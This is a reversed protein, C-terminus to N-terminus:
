RKIGYLSFQVMAASLTFTEDVDDDHLIIIGLNRGIGDINIEPSSLVSSDWFFNEWASTDWLGGTPSSLVSFRSSQGGSGYDFDTALQLTIESPSDVELTIKHFRKNRDPSKHYNFPLQVFSLTSEGDFSTGIDMEMVYGDDTGAYLRTLENDDEGAWTRTFQHAYLMPMWGMLKQGFFTAVLASKDDFFLRYQNKKAAHLADISGLYKADLTKRVNRSIADTGLDQTAQIPIITNVGSRDLFLTNGGAEQMTFSRSGISDSVSKLIWDLNSTGRLVQLSVTTAIALQDNGNSKLGTIDDGVGIEAAGLRPTWIDPEGVGSNQLSGGPFGLFLHNRHAEIFKPTDVTMGTEINMFYTGDFEFARNVGDCGYVRRMNTAGYFNTVIHQFEGNKLMTSATKTGVAQCKSVGGVQLYEANTFSGTAGTICLRGSAHTPGPYSGAGINVRRVTATHGSSLGTIVDGEYIEATGNDYRLYDSLTIAVWGATTAKHLVAYTPTVDNRWAYVDSNLVFGGLIGGSGAPKNILSRYYNRAGRLYSKRNTDGISNTNITDYATAVEVGGTLL